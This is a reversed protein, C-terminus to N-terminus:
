LKTKLQKVRKKLESNNSVDIQSILTKAEAPQGNLLYLQSLRYKSWGTQYPIDQALLKQFADIGVSINEGSEVSLKGLQYLAQNQEEDTAANEMAQTLDLRISAWNQNEYHSIARMFYIQSSHPFDEIGQAMTQEALATQDTEWYFNTLEIVGREPAVTKLVLALELAKDTDGGVISPAGTYFGILASLSDVHEPDLKIAAEWARLGKKAFGMKRFINAQSAMLIASLGFNYQLEVDQAHEEVLPELLDYATEVEGEALLLRAKQLPGPYRSKEASSLAAFAQSALVINGSELAENVDEYSALLSFPLLCSCLIFNVFRKM